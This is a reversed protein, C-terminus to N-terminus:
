VLTVKGQHVLISKLFTQRRHVAGIRSIASELMACTGVIHVHETARTIATYLWSRDLQRSNSLAIVIRKFQSGQAKHLTIAYALELSDILTRDIPVEIGRDDAVIGFIGAEESSARSLYGMTGNWVKADYNNVTFIVPDAEKIGIHQFQGKDRLLMRESHPNIKDQCQTNLTNKKSNTSTIIQTDKKGDLELLKVATSDIDHQSCEHYTVNENSLAKPVQGNKIDISYQPIGSGDAQRKVTDLVTKGIVGSEVIDHFILGAGIPPLQDADGVFLLRVSAPIHMVIRYMDKLDIMSAEDIIITGIVGNSIREERLFKAITCCEYGTAESMRMAARGSLAIGRVEMGLKKCGNMIAKLVTTKGTGAGGTIAYVGNGLAGHIAELQRNLLPFPLNSTIQKFVADHKESWFRKEQLSLLRKAIVSEMVLVGLPHYINGETVKISAKTKGVKLATDILTKDNGLLRKLRKILEDEAVCSHGEQTIRNMVDDVAGSLRNPDNIAVNFHEIAIEDVGMTVILKEKRKTRFPLGFHLLRYPNNTIQEITERGHYKLIRQIVDLPVRKDSLWQAYELNSYKKFGEILSEAAKQTLGAQSILKDTENNKLIQFLRRPFTEVLMRAKSEGIGKFCATDTLFRVIAESTEPLICECKDPKIRVETIYYSGHNVRVKEFSGQVRWCQGIAPRSAILSPRTNVVYIEKATFKRGNRIP